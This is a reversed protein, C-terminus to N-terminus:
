ATRLAHRRNLHEREEDTLTALRVRMTEADVWCEEALTDLEGSWCAADCLLELPILRRAAVAHVEAEARQDQRCSDGREVHVLEHALTARRESQTLGRRLLVTRSPLHWAGWVGDPLSRFLIRVKLAAAHEWPDYREVM